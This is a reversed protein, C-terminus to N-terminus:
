CCGLLVDVPVQWARGGPLWRTAAAVEAEPVLALRLGLGRIAADEAPVLCLARNCVCVEGSFALPLTAWLVPVAKEAAEWPPLRDANGDGWRHPNVRVCAHTCPRSARAKRCGARSDERAEPCAAARDCPECSARLDWNGRGEEPPGRSTRQRIGSARRSQRCRGGPGLSGHVDEDYDEDSDKQRSMRRGWARPPGGVKRTGGPGKKIFHSLAGRYGGREGRLVCYIASRSRALTQRGGCFRSRRPLHFTQCTLKLVRPEELLLSNPGLTLLPPIKQFYTARKEQTGGSMWLCFNYGFAM